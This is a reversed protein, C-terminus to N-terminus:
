VRWFPKAAESTAENPDIGIDRLLHPELRALMARERRRTLLAAVSRGLRALFGTPVSRPATLTRIQPM